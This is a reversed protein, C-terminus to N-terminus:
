SLETDSLATGAQLVNFKSLFNHAIPITIAGRRLGWGSGGSQVGSITHTTYLTHIPTVNACHQLPDYPFTWLVQREWEAAAALLRQQRRQRRRDSAFSGREWPESRPVYESEEVSVMNYLGVWAGVHGYDPASRFISACPGFCAELKVCAMDRSFNWGHWQGSIRAYRVNREKRLVTRWPQFGLKILSYATTWCKMRYCPTQKAVYYYKVKLSM